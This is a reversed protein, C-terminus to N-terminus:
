FLNEIIKKDKILVREDDGKACKVYNFDKIKRERLKALKYINKESKKM